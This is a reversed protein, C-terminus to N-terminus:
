LHEGDLDNQLLPVTTQYIITRWFYGVAAVLTIFNSFWYSEWGVLAITM